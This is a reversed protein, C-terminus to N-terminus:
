DNQKINFLAYKRAVESTINKQRFIDASAQIFFIFYFLKIQFWLMDAKKGRIHKQSVSLLVWPSEPQWCCTNPHTNDEAPRLLGSQKTLSGSQWYLLSSPNSSVSFTIPMLPITDRLELSLFAKEGEHCPAEFKIKRWGWVGELPLFLSYCYKMCRIPVPYFNSRSPKLHIRM